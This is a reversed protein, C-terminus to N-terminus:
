GCKDNDCRKVPSWFAVSHALDGHAPFLSVGGASPLSKHNYADHNKKQVQEEIFYKARNINKEVTERSSIGFSGSGQPRSKIHSARCEIPTADMINGETTNRERNLREESM